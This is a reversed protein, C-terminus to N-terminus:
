PPKSDGVERDKDKDDKRQYRYPEMKKVYKQLKEQQILTEVQDKLHRCENIRHEHDHYFRCYKNKDKREAPTSIPKPWQLSPNDRIQMLVQEIPMILPTFITFKPRRDLLEKKKGTAQRDSQTEKKKERNSSTEEDRKRKGKMEKALMMDEVNM